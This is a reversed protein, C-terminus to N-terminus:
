LDIGKGIIDDIYCWRTISEHFMEYKARAVLQFVKYYLEDGEKFEVLIAHGSTPLENTDHWLAKLFAKIGEEFAVQIEFGSYNEIGVNEDLEQKFFRFSNFISLKDIIDVM